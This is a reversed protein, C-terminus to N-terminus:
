NGIDVDAAGKTVLRAQVEVGVNDHIFNFKYSDSLLEDDNIVDYYVKM